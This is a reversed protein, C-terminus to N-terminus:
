GRIEGIAYEGERQDRGLTIADLTKLITKFADGSVEFEMSAIQTQQSEATNAM